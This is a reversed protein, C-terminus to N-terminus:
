RELAEELAACLTKLVALRAGKKDNAAVLTWPAHGTSTRAVMEDVAAAYAGWQKRNRWDEETIKHKKHAVRAREKFRALQEQPSIHLWFKCLCVGADTLQREFENIEAYARRWEHPKAFGEVREVLVRGYWSRDYITVMGGRPIHRWFRWLYHHAREEDTPAAVPIVRFLRADIAATVRRIAGGKGAADWGEFMAVTSIKREHARWSLKDLRAQYKELKRQYTGPDARAALDVGALASGASARPLRTAAAPRRRLAERMARLLLRGAELERYQRDTADIVHWRAFERDTARLAEKSVKVFRDYHRSYAKEYPTLQRKQERVIGKLRRKQEKKTVHFWLKVLLAGNDALTRELAVIGDLEAAYRKRGIDKYAREVIPQTYWSGFLIGIQDAAPLQRWFRWQRPREREEDSEDWFAVSQVNRADLWENLRKVAQSKGATEVGSVIVIVPVRAERLRRQAALLDAHLRLQAKDFAAKSVPRGKAGEFM